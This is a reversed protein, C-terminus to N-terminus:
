GERRNLYASIPVFEAHEGSYIVGCGLVGKRTGYKAYRVALSGEDGLWGVNMGFITSKYNSSYIVAANSHTHGQVYSCRKEKATNACGYKGSSGVGHEVLVDWEEVVYYLEHVNWGSPLNFLENHDKLMSPDVSADVMKRSPINDHNGLVLDGYPFADTLESVVDKARAYEETPSMADPESTHFSMAHFDMLDGVHVVRERCQYVEQVWLLFPIMNENHYPIHTDPIVLIPGDEPATHCKDCCEREEAIRIARQVSEESIGYELGTEYVGVELVRKKIQQARQKSYAM